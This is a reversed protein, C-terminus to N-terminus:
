ITTKESQKMILYNIISNHTNQSHLQTKTTGMFAIETEPTILNVTEM